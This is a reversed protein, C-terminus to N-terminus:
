KITKLFKRSDNTISKIKDESMRNLTGFMISLRSNNSLKEKNEIMFNWYLYNYPCATEGNKHNVKYYCTKCYNSMKNIYNGGSAYPKTGLVGGDAFLAMGTVNPLEVWQYADAYVILFWENVATPNLGTLLAFNGIVMLRQIHHAYANQKTELISQKLCNMKTEGTWFFSPLKRKANFFNVTEYEPMKLWYIGRVFERWGLIQRIFGEVCNLRAIGDHYAKEAAHVCESPLLLGCNLYLGIHSHYLWPEGNLMADQYDGFSSLREKVFLELAKLAQDRTVAFHFDNLDGFHNYFLKATLNIVERTIQDPEQKYTQPIENGAALTKRNDSDFNWKGGIPKENSMLISHTRRMERYFNELRLEKRGQAWKIFNTKSILFRDDNLILVKCNLQKGWSKIEELCRYESAETVVIKNLDYTKLCREVEGFFSGTNDPDEIRTYEVTYGNNKLETSFHRMASFIFAIKKKHHKVYTAEESVECMLIIDTEPDYDTLSSIKLNLQDGLVLRLAKTM